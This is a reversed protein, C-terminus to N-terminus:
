FETMAVIGGKADAWERCTMVDCPTPDKFPHDRYVTLPEGDDLQRVTFGGERRFEDPTYGHLEALVNVAEDETPASVWYRATGEILFIRRM